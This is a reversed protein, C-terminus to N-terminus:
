GEPAEAVSLRQLLRGRAEDPRQQAVLARFCAAIAVSWTETNPSLTGRQRAAGYRGSLEALPRARSLTGTAAAGTTEPEVTVTVAVREAGPKWQSVPVNTSAAPLLPGKRILMVIRAGGGVGGAGPVVAFRANPQFERLVRAREALHPFATRDREGWIGDLRATIRPLAEVLAGSRSFRRSRMRARAHNTKQLYLALEDIKDPDAIM